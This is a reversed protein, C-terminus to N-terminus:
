GRYERAAMGNLGESVPSKKFTVYVKRLSLPDKFM